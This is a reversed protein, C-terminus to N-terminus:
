RQISARSPCSAQAILKQLDLIAMTFRRADVPVDPGYKFTHVWEEREIADRFVFVPTDRSGREVNVLDMGQVSLYAALYLSSTYFYRGDPRPTISSRPPTRSNEM